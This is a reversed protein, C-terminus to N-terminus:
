NFDQNATWILHYLAFSSLVAQVYLSGGLDLLSSCKSRLTIVLSVSFWCNFNSQNYLALVNLLIVGKLVWCYLVGKCWLIEQSCHQATSQRVIHLLSCKRHSSPWKWQPVCRFRKKFMKCYLFTWTAGGQKLRNKKFKTGLSFFGTQFHWTEELLVPLRSTYPLPSSWILHLNLREDTGRTIIFIVIM